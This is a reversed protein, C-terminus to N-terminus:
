IAPWHLKGARQVKRLRQKQESASISYKSALKPKDRLLYLKHKTLLTAPRVVEIREILPSLVCFKQEVGVGDVMARVLITPESPHRHIALLVGAFQAPSRATMSTRYFVKLMSGAHIRTPSNKAFLSWRSDKNLRQRQENRLYGILNTGSIDITGETM